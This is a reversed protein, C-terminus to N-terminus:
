RGEGFLLFTPKQITLPIRRAHRISQLKLNSGGAIQLARHAGIMSDRIRIKHGQTAVHIARQPVLNARDQAIHFHQEQQSVALHECM